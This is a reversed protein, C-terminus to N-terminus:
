PQFTVELGDSLNFGSQAADPDRYWAQIFWTSGPILQADHPAAALDLRTVLFGDGDASTPALRQIGGAAAVCLNGDGFPTQGSTPGYFFLGPNGSPIESATLQLLNGSVRDSGQASIRSAEGTSNVTSACYNTGVDLFADLAFDIQFNGFGEPTIAWTTLVRRGQPFLDNTLLVPVWRNFKIIGTNSDYFGDTQNSEPIFDLHNTGSAEGLYDFSAFEASFQVMNLPVLEPPGVGFEVSMHGVLGATGMIEQVESVSGTDDLDHHDWIAMWETPESQIAFTVFQPPGFFPPAQGGVRANGNVKKGKPAKKEPKKCACGAVCGGFSNILVVNLCLMGPGCGAGMPDCIQGPCNTPEPNKKTKCNREAGQDGTAISAGLILAFLTGLPLVRARPSPSM